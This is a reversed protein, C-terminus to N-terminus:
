LATPFLNQKHRDNRIKCLSFYNTTRRRIECRNELRLNKGQISSLFITKCAEVQIINEMFEELSEGVDNELFDEFDDLCLCRLIDDQEAPELDTDFNWTTTKM